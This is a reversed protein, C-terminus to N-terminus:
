LSIQPIFTKYELPSELGRRVSQSRAIGTVFATRERLLRKLQKRYLEPEIDDGVFHCYKGVASAVTRDGGGQTTLLYIAWTRLTTQPSMPRARPRPRSIEGVLSNAVFRRALESSAKKDGPFMMRLLPLLIGQALTPESIDIRLTPVERPELRVSVTPWFPIRDHEVYDIVQRESLGFRAGALRATRYYRKTEPLEFWLIAQLAAAPLGDLEGAIESMAISDGDPPRTRKWALLRRLEQHPDDIRSTAERLQEHRRRVVKITKLWRPDFLFTFLSFTMRVLVADPVPFDSMNRLLGRAFGLIEDERNSSIHEELEGLPGFDFASALLPSSEDDPRAGARSM